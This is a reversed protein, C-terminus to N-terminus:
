ERLVLAGGRFRSSSIRLALSRAMLRNAQRAAQEAAPHTTGDGFAAVAASTPKRGM